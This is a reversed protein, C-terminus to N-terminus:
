DREGRVGEPLYLGLSGCVGLKRPPAPAPLDRITGERLLAADGRALADLYAGTRAEAARPGAEWVARWADAKPRALRTAARYFPELAPPGQDAVRAQLQLFGEVALDRRRRAAEEGTAYARVGDALSAARAYAAPDEVVDLPFSLVFDGAEPLGVNQMLVLVELEGDQNVLRHLVGPTFWVLRGPELPIERYGFPGLAQVRGTGRLVAYAETCVHHLHPGGGALGDPAPTDYVRLHTVGIAGPLPPDFPPQPM